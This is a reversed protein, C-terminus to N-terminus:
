ATGSKSKEATQKMFREIFTSTEVNMIVNGDSDLKALRAKEKEAQRKARLEGAPTLLTRSKLYEQRYDEILKEKVWKPDHRSRYKSFKNRLEDLISSEFPPSLLSPTWSQVDVEMRLTDQEQDKHQVANAQPWPIEINEGSIYRTHKPITSGVEHELFPPGADIHEVLVDRTTGTTSDVLGVVLRVNDLPIPVDLTYYPRGTGYLESVWEPIKQDVQLIFLFPSNYNWHVFDLRNLLCIVKIGNRLTVTETEADVSDVEYIKGKNQGRIICVREGAVVNIYKRRLHRPIKPLNLLQPSLAGYNGAEAGSDRKAALPGRLWDDKRNLRERRAVQCLASERQQKQKVFEKYDTRKQKKAAIMAKRQAQGKALATRRIVKQM